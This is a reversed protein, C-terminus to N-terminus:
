SDATPSEFVFPSGRISAKGGANWAIGRLGITNSRAYLVISNGDRSFLIFFSFFPKMPRSHRHGRNTTNSEHTTEDDKSSIQEIKKRQLKHKAWAYLDSFGAMLRKPNM